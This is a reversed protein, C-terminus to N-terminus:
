SLIVLSSTGIVAALLRIVDAVVEIVSALLRSVVAFTLSKEIRWALRTYFAPGHAGPGKSRLM